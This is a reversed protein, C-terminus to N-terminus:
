YLIKLMTLRFFLCNLCYFANNNYHLNGRLPRDVNLISYYSSLPITQIGVDCSINKFLYDM